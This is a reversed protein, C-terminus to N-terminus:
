SGQSASLYEAYQTLYTNLSSPLENSHLLAWFQSMGTSLSQGSGIEQQLTSIVQGLQGQETNSLEGKAQNVVSQVQQVAQGASAPVTTLSSPFTESGSASTSTSTSSGSTSGSSASASGGAGAGSTAGASKSGTATQTAISGSSATNSKNSSGGTSLAIVVAIVIVLGIGAGILVAPKPKRPHPHQGSGSGGSGSGYGSGSASGVSFTAAGVAGAGAGAGAGSKPRPGRPVRPIVETSEGVGVGVAVGGAAGVNGGGAVAGGVSATSAANGAGVTGVAAGATGSAGATGAGAAATGVTGSAAASGTGAAAIGASGAGQAAQAAGAEAIEAAVVAGAVAAVAAGKAAASRKRKKGAAGVIVEGAVEEGVVEAAVVEEALIEEAVVEEAVFEEVAETEIAETEIAEVEVAAAEAGTTLLMWEARLAATLEAARPRIGAEGLALLLVEALAESVGLVVLNEAAWERRRLVVQEAMSELEATVAFEAGFEAELVAWGVLALVTLWALAYVDAAVTLESELATELALSAPLDAIVVEYGAGETATLLVSRAGLHGHVLEFEALLELVEAVQALAALIEAWDEIEERLLIEALTEGATAPVACYGVSTVAGDVEFEYEGFAHVVPVAPHNIRRLAAVAGALESGGAHLGDTAAFQIWVEAEVEADSTVDVALWYEYEAGAVREAGVSFVDLRRVLQYREGLLVGESLESIGEVM